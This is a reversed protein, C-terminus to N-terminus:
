DLYKHFFELTRKWADEAATKNYVEPREDNFFAHEANPYIHAEFNKGLRKMENQLNKVVDVTVFGDKEAYLGLIPATLSALDPQVRPHGGYFVVSADVDRNKSASYLSLAGGMCFGVVGVKGSSNGPHEKLYAIAASLDKEAKDINMAMMLKEAENPSKASKGHYLDPALALFGAQAFRDVISKIHPVLGWWEQIVVVGPGKGMHPQGVYGSVVIGDSSLTVMEGMKM